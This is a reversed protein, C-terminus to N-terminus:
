RPQRSHGHRNERMCPEQRFRPIIRGDQETFTATVLTVVASQERGDSWAFTYEIRGDREITHFTGGMWTPGQSESEILARWTGGPRFDFELRTCTCAAPGLWRIMQEVQEFVRFALLLPADPTVTSPRQDDGSPRAQDHSAM